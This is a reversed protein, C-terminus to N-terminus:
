SCQADRCKHYMDWCFLSTNQYEKLLKVLEQTNM